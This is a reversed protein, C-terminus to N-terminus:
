INNEFKEGCIYEIKANEYSEKLKKTILWQMFFIIKLKCLKTFLASFFM